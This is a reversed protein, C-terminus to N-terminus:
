ANSLASAASSLCSLGLTPSALHVYETTNQLSTFMNQTCPIKSNRNTARPLWSTFSKGGTLTKNSAPRCHQTLMRSGNCLSRLSRSRGDSALLSALLQKNPRIISASVATAMDLQLSRPTYCWFQVVELPAWPWAVGALHLARSATAEDKGRRRRISSTAM